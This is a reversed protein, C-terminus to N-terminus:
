GQIAAYKDVWNVWPGDLHGWQTTNQLRALRPQQAEYGLIRGATDYSAGTLIAADVLDPDSHLVSNSYGSGLSHGV